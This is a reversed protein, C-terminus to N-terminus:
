HWVSHPPHGVGVEKAGQIGGTGRLTGDMREVLRITKVKILKGDSEEFFSVLM